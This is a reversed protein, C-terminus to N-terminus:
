RPQPRLRRRHSVTIPKAAIIQARFRGYGWVTQLIKEPAIDPPLIQRLRRRAAIAAIRLLSGLLEARCWSPAVRAGHQLCDHGVAVLPLVYLPRADHEGRGIPVPVASQWPMPRLRGVTHHQCCRKASAPTSPRNRWVIWLGPLAGIAASLAAWNATSVGAKAPAPQAGFRRM